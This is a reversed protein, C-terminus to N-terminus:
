ASVNLGSWRTPAPWEQKGPKAGARRTSKAPKPEGGQQHDSGGEAAQGWQEFFSGWPDIEARSVDYGQRIATEPTRGLRKSGSQGAREKRGTPGGEKDSTM